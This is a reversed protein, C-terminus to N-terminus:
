NFIKIVFRWFGKYKVDSGMLSVVLPKAKAFSALIASLSYHAHIVYFNGNLITKRLPALNKIYASFGKGKILYYTIEIELKSLSEGQNYIIPSINQSKNERSVFM